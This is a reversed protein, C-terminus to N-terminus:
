TGKISVNRHKWWEKANGSHFSHIVRLSKHLQPLLLVFFAITFYIIPNKVGQMNWTILKTRCAWELAASACLNEDWTCHLLRTTFYSDTVWCHPITPVVLLLLFLTYIENNEAISHFHKTTSEHMIWWTQRSFCTNCKCGRLQENKTRTVVGDTYIQKLSHFSLIFSRDFTTTAIRSFMNHLEFSLLQLTDQINLIKSLLPSLIGVIVWSFRDRTGVNWM